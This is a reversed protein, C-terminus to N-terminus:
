IIQRGKKKKKLKKKKSKKKKHKEENKDKETERELILPHVFCWVILSLCYSSYYLFTSIYIIFFPHSVFAVSLSTIVIMMKIILWLSLSSSSSFFYGSKPHAVSNLLVLLCM